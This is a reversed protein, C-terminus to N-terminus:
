TNCRIYHIIIGQDHIEYIELFRVIFLMSGLELFFNFLFSYNDTLCMESVNFVDIICGSCLISVFKSM